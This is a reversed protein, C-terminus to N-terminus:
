KLFHQGLNDKEEEVGPNEQVERLRSEYEQLRKGLIESIKDDAM